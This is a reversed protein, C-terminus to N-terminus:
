FLFERFIVKSMDAPMSNLYTHWGLNHRIDREHTSIASTRYVHYCREMLEEQPMCRPMLFPSRFAPSSDRALPNGNTTGLDQSHIAFIAAAAWQGFSSSEGPRLPLRAIGLLNDSIFTDYEDCRWYLALALLLTPERWLPYARRSERHLLPSSRGPRPQPMPSHWSCHFNRLPRRRIEGRVQRCELLHARRFKLFTWRPPLSVGSPM